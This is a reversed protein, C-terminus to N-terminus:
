PASIQAPMRQRFIDTANLIGIVQKQGDPLSKSVEVSGSEIIYACDSPTGEEIINEGKKFHLLKM